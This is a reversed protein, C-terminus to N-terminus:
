FNFSDAFPLSRIDGVAIATPKTKIIKQAVSQVYDSNLDDYLSLATTVPTAKAFSPIQGSVIETKAARTEYSAATDFKAKAIARKFDENLINQSIKKLKEAAAHAVENVSASSGEIYVGFLGTDSYGANFTNTRTGTLYKNASQALPSVGEGWKTHKEAGLIFRLVQLAAFDSTGTAAGPFALVFHSKESPIPIRSDGGFYKTPSSIISSGNSLEKFYQDILSTLKKSDIGTGIITINPTTYVQGAFAKVDEISKVKTTSDAFLSNGLGNRFAVAHAADLALIEPIHHAAETEFKVNEKVEEFDWPNYKANTITDSLIEIFFPLDNELFEASLVLNERTLNASLLGGLLETERTTRFATRKTTEKFAFNKLYNSVGINETTEVRPGAKVVVAVSVAPASDEVAVVTVGNTSKTVHVPSDVVSAFLRKLGKGVSAVLPGQLTRTRLM